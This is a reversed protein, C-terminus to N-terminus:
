GCGELQLGGSGAHLVAFCGSRTEETDKARDEADRAPAEAQQVQAEANAIREQARRSKCGTTTLGACVFVAGTGVVGSPSKAPAPSDPLGLVYPRKM